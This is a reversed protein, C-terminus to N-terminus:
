HKTPRCVSAHFTFVDASGYSELRRQTDLQLRKSYTIIATQVNPNAAVVAEATATKGAGPRASVMVNIYQRKFADV